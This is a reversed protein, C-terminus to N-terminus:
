EKMMDELGHAIKELRESLEKRLLRYYEKANGPATHSIRVRFDSYLTEINGSVEEALPQGTANALVLTKWYMRVAEAYLQKIEKKLLRRSAM